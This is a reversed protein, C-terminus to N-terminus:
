QYMMPIITGCFEKYLIAQMIEKQPNVAGNQLIYKWLRDDASLPKM